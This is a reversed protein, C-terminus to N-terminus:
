RAATGLKLPYLGVIRALAPFVESASHAREIFMTMRALWRTGGILVSFTAASASPDVQDAAQARATAAWCGFFRHYVSM